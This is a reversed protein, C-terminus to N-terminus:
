LRVYLKQIKNKTTTQKTKNQKKEALLIDSKFALILVLWLSHQIRSVSLRDYIIKLIVYTECKVVYKHKVRFAMFTVSMNYFKLYGLFPKLQFFPM